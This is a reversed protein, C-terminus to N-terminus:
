KPAASLRHDGPVVNSMHAGSWRSSVRPPVCAIIFCLLPLLSRDSGGSM